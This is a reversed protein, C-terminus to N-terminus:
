LNSLSFKKWTELIQLPLQGGKPCDEHFADLWKRKKRSDKMAELRSKQDTCGLDANASAQFGSRYLNLSDKYRISFSIEQLGKLDESQLTLESLPELKEFISHRLKEVQTISPFSGEQFPAHDLKVLLPRHKIGSKSKLQMDMIAYLPVDSEFAGNDFATEYVRYLSHSTKIINKKGDLTCNVSRNGEKIELLENLFQCYKEATLKFAPEQVKSSQCRAKIEFNKSDESTPDIRLQDCTIKFEPGYMSNLLMFSNTLTDEFPFYNDRKASEATTETLDPKFKLELEAVESPESKLKSREDDTLKCDKDHRIRLLADPAYKHLFQYREQLLFCNKISNEELKKTINLFVDLTENRLNKLDTRHPMTQLGVTLIKLAESSHQGELAAMAAQRTDMAAQHSLFLYDDSEKDHIQNLRNLSDPIVAFASSLTLTFILFHMIM